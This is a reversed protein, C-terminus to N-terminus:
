KKDGQKLLRADCWNARDALDLDEGWEVSLTLQSAAAIRLRVPAPRDTGRMRKKLLEKGDASVAFVCDGKGAASADLGIVAAFTDYRGGVEYTLRCRSHVGLGKEYVTKGLTLPGGVVNRDRRWPGAYTVLAEEVVGIPDLDSLFVMRSSRVDLRCVADWPLVLEADEALRASLRGQELKAVAAWLSSGDRLQILCRGTLDPKPGHHALVLGYVKAREVRREADNWTFLAEKPTLKQLGGRVVHLKKDVIAFLEDRRTEDRQRASAFAEPVAGPKADPMRGLRLARVVPLPLVLRSGYAWRVTLRKGDFSVDRARIVGGAPLFVDCPAAKRPEPQVPREIRRLGMLDVHSRGSKRHVLGGADIATVTDSAASGDLLVLRDDAGWAVQAAAWATAFVAGTIFIRCIDRRRM